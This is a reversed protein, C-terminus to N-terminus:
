AALLVGHIFLDLAERPCQMLEAEPASNLWYRARWLPQRVLALCDSFTPEGKHYWAAVPVPMRGEHSLRLALVTVLSVLALLVPTTRAIAHASWQRPTELGLHPRSEECTVEVAWRRVVWPLIEVPTAELDPCFLAEMRLTGEPDAGLVDRLAVPLQRPTYWLATRSVVGLTTLPGSSWVVDVTEGPTDSREAWSQLRRQRKGQTPNPGRKSSPQPGPPHSLAADGRWRSVRTVQHTGCAIALSVAAVGGDVGVVLRRGPLWRRGPKMMQRVGDVRTKHRRRPSPEAPWCLATLLPLAWVRRRWPVPVLLRMAVGQLGVGRIVHQKTSRVAARSCGHARIKRGSRREVTDDAGGGLAAGPPVRLTILVGWLIRSGHRASWTARTLVRPDNTFHRERTRGMVRLAGTVTRSGPSLIAGVLLGQAHVWVRASVLPAFPALVLIIAEPLPPLSHGGGIAHGKASSM